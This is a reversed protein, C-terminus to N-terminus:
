DFFSLQFEERIQTSRLFLFNKSKEGFVANKFLDRQTINLFQTKQAMTRGEQELFFAKYNSKAYGYSVTTLIGFDLIENKQWFIDQYYLVVTSATM